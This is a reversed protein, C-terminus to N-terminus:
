DGNYALSLFEARVRADDKFVGRLACTTTDSNQHCVGRSEMCMHRAKIVVGCGAPQLYTYLAEAIQNTMREQVQLRRAFVDALRDLKSLGVIKGNPIYAIVAEGIIPALHHECHSYIPVHKRVVMEDCQEAGDEFVKLVEAPDLRYGSTWFQWAKAVRMPTEALGARAPDPDVQALLDRTAQALKPLSGDWHGAPAHPKPRATGDLRKAIPGDPFVAGRVVVAHGHEVLGKPTWGVALFDELRYGELVWEDTLRVTPADAQAPLAVRREAVERPVPLSGYHDAPIEYGM